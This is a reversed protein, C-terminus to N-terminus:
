FGGSPQLKLGTGLNGGTVEAGTGQETTLTIEANSTTRQEEISRAVREQPTVVQPGTAGQTQDADTNDGFLDFAKDGLFKGFDSLLPVNNFIGTFENLKVIALTLGAVLATVAIVMLAIPNVAMVLNFAAVATTATKVALSFAAFSALAIGIRKLWTIINELNNILNLLFEGINTAILQENARVWATMKDVVENLPGSTMSFMTIKVGEIASNLSNLRGQLTDRMVSAMTSSAGSAGELQKRYEKLRKSGTNLLVNVGAIPIKGFIGELVGAKEATGLGDLSKSLDGLIDVIDRMDGNADQTSVGFKNLLKAGKTSPAALKLFMNKLTTGARTGKIGANALEGTLAAFTELSAGASMAVPAGDKITEFMTEVTTNATTTTKAIVDNVRALNLGLQAADDTMLNFAGLSDTAVDSATALDVGAATALDIVGPLAAVSQEANFGAMALFNLAEASQSATFETTSGAKRAADELMTFAETGKRIEGPFKAAASVLTQEFEAGTGIVNAMAAGSIALSAAIALGTKKIGGALKDVNRNLKNLGGNMSRTFKGIRNQMRNVPATVRDVAKFVAEVSFRGAM